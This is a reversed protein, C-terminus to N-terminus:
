DTEKNYKQVTCGCNYLMYDWDELEDEDPAFSKKMSLFQEHMWGYYTDVLADKAERLTECDIADCVHENEWMMRWPARYILHPKSIIKIANAIDILSYELGDPYEQKLDSLIDEVPFDGYTYETCGHKRLLNLAYEKIAKKM